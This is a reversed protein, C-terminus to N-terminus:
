YKKYFLSILKAILYFFYPKRIIIDLIRYRFSSNRISSKFDSTWFISDREILNYMKYFESYINVRIAVLFISLYMNKAYGIYGLNQISKALSLNKITKFIIPFYRDHALLIDKNVSRCTSGSRQLVNYIIENSFGVSTTEFSFLITLFYDENFHLHRVEQNYCKQWLFRKCIKICLSAKINDAGLADAIIADHDNLLSITYKKTTNLKEGNEDILRFRAFFMDSNTRELGNVLIEIANHEITDDSDVCYIYDGTSQLFGVYRSDAQGTNQKNILKIRNDIKRFHECIYLSDDTSGDNILIIEIDKYSQNCISDICKHLYPGTNFIPVLISVKKM